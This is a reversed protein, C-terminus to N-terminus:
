LRPLVKDEDPERIIALLHNVAIALSERNDFESAKKM